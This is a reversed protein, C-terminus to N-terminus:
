QLDRRMRKHAGVDWNVVKDVMLVRGFEKIKLMRLADDEEEPHPAYVLKRKEHM